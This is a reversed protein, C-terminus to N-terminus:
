VHGPRTSYRRKGDIHTLLCVTVLGRLLSRGDSGVHTCDGRRPLARQKFAARHQRLFTSAHCKSARADSGSVDFLPVVTFLRLILTITSASPKANLAPEIAAPM